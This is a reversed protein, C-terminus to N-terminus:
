IAAAALGNTKARARTPPQVAIPPAPAAKQPRTPLTFRAIRRIAGTLQKAFSGTNYPIEYKNCIAQLEKAIQPYRPAPLDPFVHHEIQHSLHGSLLHFWNPGEV